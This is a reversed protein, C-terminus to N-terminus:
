LPKSFAKKPVAKKLRKNSSQERNRKKKKEKEKKKKKKEEEEEGGIRVSGFMTKRLRNSGKGHTYNKQQAGCQKDCLRARM